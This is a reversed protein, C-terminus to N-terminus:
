PPTMVRLTGSDPRTNRVILATTPIVIAAVATAVGAALVWRKQYWPVPAEIPELLRRITDALPVLDTNVSVTRRDRERGDIALLRVVATHGHVEAVILGRYGATRAQVLEALEDLAAIPEPQADIGIPSTLDIRQRWLKRDPCTVNVWHPGTVLPASTPPAGDVRVACGDPAKVGLAVRPRDAVSGRARELEAVVKPPFRAPDLVRTPDVVLATVLEDWAAADGRQTRVLGRYLFLDSLQAPSLGAAGTEDVQRRAEELAVWADDFRLANYAEVGTNVLIAIDETRTPAPTRDITAAGAERAVAEVPAIKFGPAWVVVVDASPAAVAAAPGLVFALFVVPARV